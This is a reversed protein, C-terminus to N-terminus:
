KEGEESQEFHKALEDLFAPLESATMQPDLMGKEMMERLFAAARKSLRARFMDLGREAQPTTKIERAKVAHRQEEAGVKGIVTNLEEQIDADELEQRLKAEEEPSLGNHKEAGPAMSDLFERMQESTPKNSM